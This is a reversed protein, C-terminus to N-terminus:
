AEYLIVSLNVSACLICYLNQLCKVDSQILAPLDGLTRAWDVYRNWDLIGDKSLQSKMAAASQPSGGKVSSIM